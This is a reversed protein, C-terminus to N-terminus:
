FLSMFLSKLGHIEWGIELANELRPRSDPCSQSMFSTVAPFLLKSFQERDPGSWQVADLVLVYLLDSRRQWSM